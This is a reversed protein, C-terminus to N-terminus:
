LVSIGEEPSGRAMPYMTPRTPRGVTFRKKIHRCCMTVKAQYHEELVLRSRRHSLEIDIQGNMSAQPMVWTMSVTTVFESHNMTEEKSEQLSIRSNKCGQIGKRTRPPIDNLKIAVIGYCLILFLMHYNGTLYTKMSPYGNLRKFNPMYKFKYWNMKVRIVVCVLWSQFLM